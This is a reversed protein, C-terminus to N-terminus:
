QGPLFAMPAIGFFGAPKILRENRHAVPHRQVNGLYRVSLDHGAQRTGDPRPRQAANFGSRAEAKSVDPITAVKQAAWDRRSQTTIRAAM